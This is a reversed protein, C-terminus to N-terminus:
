VDTDRSFAQPKSDCVQECPNWMSCEYESDYEDEHENCFDNQERMSYNTYRRESEPSPPRYSSDVHYANPAIRSM